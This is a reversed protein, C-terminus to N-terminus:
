RSSNLSQVFRKYKSLPNSKYRIGAAKLIKRFAKKEDHESRVEYEIEFDILGNYHNIDFCLEAEDSLVIARETVLQGLPYCDDLSVGFEELKSLIEPDDRLEGEFYKEHEFVTGNKHEKLTFLKRGNKERVRFFYHKSSASSAYYTNIQPVFELPQYLDTIRKFQEENVLMKLEKEIQPQM